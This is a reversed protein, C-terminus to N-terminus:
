LKGGNPLCRLQNFKEHDQPMIYCEGRGLNGIMDDELIDAAWCWGAVTYHPLKGTVLVYMDSNGLVADIKVIIRGTKYPTTKVDYTWGGFEGDNIGPKDNLDPYTNQVKSFAFEGGVGEIDVSENSRDSVKRDVVGYSRASNYRERAITKVVLQEMENLSVKM